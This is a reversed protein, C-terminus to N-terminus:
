LVEKKDKSASIDESVVSVNTDDSKQAINYKTYDVGVTEKSIRYSGDTEDMMVFQSDPTIEKVNIYPVTDLPYGKKTLRRNTYRKILAYIVAFAPVGIIMGIVGFLGGFITISFLVWFSSLGTSDGLIKPGLYNGDFQQLILIFILFYLCQLPDVMLVLLASPIAGLYPGFFPIINTIGVIFSILLSYPTGIFQLCIFCLIGIILSDLLKGSIFGGFTRDIFRIDTLFANARETKFISFLIKKSQGIFREKSALMYIAVILGLILDWLTLVFSIVGQSLGKIFANMTPLIGSVWEYIDSSYQNMAAIFYHEIEPYRALMKETFHVLNNIYTPFSTAISQLSKYIEPIVILLFAYICLFTIILTIIISILRMYSMRKNTITINCKKLLPLFCKEEIFNVISSLLYAIIFGYIIPKIVDLIKRFIRFFLSGNFLLYIFSTGLIIVLLAVIGIGITKKDIGFKM